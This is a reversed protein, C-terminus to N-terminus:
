EFRGCVIFSRIISPQWYHWIKWNQTYSEARREGIGIASVTNVTALTYVLRIWVWTVKKNLAISWVFLLCNFCPDSQILFYPYKVISFLNYLISLNTRSSHTRQGQSSAYVYTAVIFPMIEREREREEEPSMALEWLLPQRLTKCNQM